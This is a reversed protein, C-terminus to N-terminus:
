VVSYRKRARSSGCSTGPNHILNRPAHRPPPSTRGRYGDICGPQRLSRDAAIEDAPHFMKALRLAGPFVPQLSKRYDIHFPLDNQSLRGALRWPVVTGCQGHQHCPRMLLRRRAAHQGVGLEIGFAIMSKTALLQLCVANNWSFAAGTTPCGTHAELHALVEWCFQVPFAGQDFADERSDLAFEGAAGGASGDVCLGALSEQEAAGEVEVAKPQRSTSPLALIDVSGFV